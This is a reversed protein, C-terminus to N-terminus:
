RTVMWTYVKLLEKNESLYKVPNYDGHIVCISFYVAALIQGSGFVEIYSDPANFIGFAVFEAATFVVIIALGVLFCNAVNRKWVPDFVRVGGPFLAFDTLATTSLSEKTDANTSERMRKLIYELRRLMQCVIM